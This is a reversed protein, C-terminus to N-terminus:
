EPRRMNGRAGDQWAKMREEMEKQKKEKYAVYTKYQDATLIKKISDEQADNMKKSHFMLSDRQQGYKQFLENRKQLENSFLNFIEKEQKENLNLEKKLEAVQNKIREEQMKKMDEQSFGPRQGRQYQQMGTRGQGRQSQQMGMRGQADVNFSLSVLLAIIIFSLTKM